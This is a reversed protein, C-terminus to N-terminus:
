AQIRTAPDPIKSNRDSLFLCKAMSNKTAFAYTSNLDYATNGNKIRWYHYAKM